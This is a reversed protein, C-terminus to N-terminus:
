RFRADLWRSRGLLIRAQGDSLYGGPLGVRHAPVLCQGPGPAINDDRPRVRLRSLSTILLNQNATPAPPARGTACRITGCGRSPSAAGRPCHIAPDFGSGPPASCSPRGPPRSGCGFRPLFFATGTAMTAPGTAGLKPCCKRTKNRRSSKKIMGELFGLFSFPFSPSFFFRRKKCSVRTWVRLKMRVFSRRPRANDSATTRDAESPLPATAFFGCTAQGRRQVGPRAGWLPAACLKEGSFCRDFLPRVLGKGPLPPVGYPMGPLLFDAFEKEPLQKEDLFFFNWTSRLLAPFLSRPRPGKSYGIAGYSSKPPPAAKRPIASESTTPPRADTPQARRLPPQSQAHSVGALRRIGADRSADRERGHINASARRSGCTTSGACEDGPDGLGM